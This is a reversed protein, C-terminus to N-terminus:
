RRSPDSAQLHVHTTVLGGVVCRDLAEEGGRVLRQEWGDVVEGLVVHAGHDGLRRRQLGRRLPRALARQDAPRPQGADPGARDGQPACPEGVRALEGSRSGPDDRGDDSRESKGGRVALLPRCRPRGIAPRRRRPGSRGCTRRLRPHGLGRSRWTCRPRVTVLGVAPASWPVAGGATPLGLTTSPRLRARAVAPSAVRVGRRARVVFSVAGAGIMAPRTARASVPGAAGAALVCGSRLPVAARMPRVAAAMEGQDAAACGVARCVVPPGTAAM